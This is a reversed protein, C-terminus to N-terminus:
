FRSSYYEDWREAWEVEAEAFCKECCTIYNMETDAYATNQRRREITLTFRRCHGCFWRPFLIAAILYLRYRLVERKGFYAPYKDTLASVLATVM